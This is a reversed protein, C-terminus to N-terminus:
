NKEIITGPMFGFHRKYAFFFMDKSSFGAQRAVESLDSKGKALLLRAYNLKTNLIFDRTDIGQHVKIKQDLTNLSVGIGEALNEASYASNSLNELIIKELKSFFEVDVNGKLLKSNRESLNPNSYPLSAPNEFRTSIMQVLSEINVPKIILNLSEIRSEAPIKLKDIQNLMLYFPLSGLYDDKKIARGLDLGNMGPMDFDAILVDPRIKSAIEFAEMGNKAEHVEGLKKLSEAFIKRLENNDEAILIIKAPKVYSINEPEVKPTSTPLPPQLTMEDKVAVVATPTATNKHNKLILTFTTGQYKSSEFVISGGIKDIYDKVHLLKIQRFNGKGSTRKADKYYDRINKQDEVPLGLGNDAIQVKLDGRNTHILNIIIKGNEFSYDVSSTIINFFIKNFYDGDSYFDGNWQNNVIIELGKQKLMPKLDQTIEGLYVSVPIEIIEPNHNAIVYKSPELKLIPNLLERLKTVISKIRKNNKLDEEESIDHLSALLVTLPTRLEQALDNKSTSTEVRPRRRKVAMFIFFPLILFLIIVFGYVLYASTSLWFPSEINMSVEQAESWPGSGTRAKVLFKYSGPTMNAYTVENQNGPKSWNKDFGKLMWSYNIAAEKEPQFGYFNFRFTNQNHKLSLENGIGAELKRFGKNGSHLEVAGLRVTPTGEPIAKLKEPSFLSVGKFTGFALRTDLRAFSGRIFVASLLGDDKDFIRIDPQPSIKFNVLGKPTGAWIEDKEVILGQIRNSPLGSTKNITRYSNKTPNYIVIGAGETAFVIDRSITESISNITFYPLDKGNPDLRNISSIEYGNKKLRFVGKKGAAIIDGSSLELIADIGKLSFTKIEGGASLQTLGGDEGGVWVNRKLDVLLVKAKQIDIKTRSDISYHARLLTNINVKYVGDNYTAVWMHIGDAELDKIVDPLNNSKSFSLTKIHQWTDNSKNQISIGQRNGFWVNGNADEEIATTFNDALSGYKKPDHRIFEFNREKLNISNIQGTETSVWLSNFNGMFLGTLSNDSLSLTNKEQQMYHSVLNLKNDLVLLGDGKTAVYFFGAGDMALGSVPLNQSSFPLSRIKELSSFSAPTKFLGDDKTGILFSDGTYLLSQVNLEKGTSFFIKKYDKSNTKITFLGKSTGFVIQNNVYILQNVSQNSPFFSILRINEGSYKWIGNSAGMWINGDKDETIQQVNTKTAPRESPIEVFVDKEPDFILLGSEAGVWINERSDIFLTNIVGIDSPLGNFRNFFMSEYSNYKEIHTDSAIWLNGAKDQRVGNIKQFDGNVESLKEIEPIEQAYANGFNCALLILFIRCFMKWNCYKM